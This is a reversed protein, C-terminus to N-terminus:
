IPSSGTTTASRSATLSKLIGSEDVGFPLRVFASANQGLMRGELDTRIFPRYGGVDYGMVIVEGLSLVNAEDANGQGGTGSLDPDPARRVRVYQGAVSQAALNLLLNDPGNPYAFGANEPNLLPSSYLVTVGNADLIDVTIDRLRSGCCSDRNHLTLSTIM